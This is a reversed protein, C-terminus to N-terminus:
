VSIGKSMLWGSIRSATWRASASIASATLVEMAIIQRVGPTPRDIRAFDQPAGLAPRM